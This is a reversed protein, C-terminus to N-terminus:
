LRGVINWKSVNIIINTVLFNYYDIIDTYSVDLNRGVRLLSYAPCVQLHSQSAVVPLEGEERWAVCTECEMRGQFKGRMNGPCVIMRTQIRFGM